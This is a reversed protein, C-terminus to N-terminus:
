SRSIFLAAIIAVIVGILVQGSFTGPDAAKVLGTNTAQTPTDTFSNGPLTAPNPTPLNQEVPPTVTVPSPAPSGIKLRAIVSDRLRRFPAVMTRWPGQDGTKTPKWVWRPLVDSGIDSKLDTNDAQEAAKAYLLLRTGPNVTLYWSQWEPAAFEKSYSFPFNNEGWFFLDIEYGTTPNSPTANFQKREADTMKDWFAQGDAIWQPYKELFVQFAFRNDAM